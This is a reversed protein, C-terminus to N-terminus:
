LEGTALGAAVSLSLLALISFRWFDGTGLKLTGVGILVGNEEWLM